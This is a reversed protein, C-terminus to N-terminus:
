VVLGSNGEAFTQKNIKQEPNDEFYRKFIIDFYTQIPDASIQQTEETM